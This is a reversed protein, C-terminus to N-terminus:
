RDAAADLLERVARALDRTSFPKQIFARDADAAGREELIEDSYGSMLLVALHPREASLRQALMKGSMEPMVMDTVLLHIPEAQRQSIALAENPNNASFVSYGQSELVEATLELFM